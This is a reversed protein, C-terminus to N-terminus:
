IPRALLRATRAEIAVSYVANSHDNDQSYPLSTHVPGVQTDQPQIVSRDSCSGRRADWGAAFHVDGGWGERFFM